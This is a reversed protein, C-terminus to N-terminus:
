ASKKWSSFQDVYRPPKGSLAAYCEKFAKPDKEQFGKRLCLPEGSAFKRSLRDIKRFGYIKEWPIPIPYAIEQEGPHTNWAHPGEPIVMGGEVLVVYVWRSANPDRGWLAFSKAVEINRSTSIYGKENQNAVMRGPHLEEGKLLQKWFLFEGWWIRDTSNPITTRVAQAFRQPEIWDVNVHLSRQVWAKFLPCLTGQLYSDDTRSVPPTFGGAKMVELPERLEGRFTYANIRELDKVGQWDKALGKLFDLTAPTGAPNVLDHPGGLPPPAPAPYAPKPPLPAGPQPAPYVPKPPLTVGPRPPAYAPKPPVRTRALFPDPRQVHGAQAGVALSPTAAKWCREAIEEFYNQMPRNAPLPVAALIPEVHLNIDDKYDAEDLKAYSKIPQWADFEGALRGPTAATFASKKYDSFLGSFVGM